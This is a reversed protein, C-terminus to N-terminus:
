DLFLSVIASMVKYDTGIVNSFVAGPKKTMDAMIAHMKAVNHGEKKTDTSMFSSGGPEYFTISDAQIKPSRPFRIFKPEGKETIVLHGEKIYRVIKHKGEKFAKLDEVDMRDEDLDLDMLEVFRDFDADASEQDVVKEDNENETM